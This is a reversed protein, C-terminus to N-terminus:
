EMNSARNKSIEPVTFGLKTPASRNDSVPARAIHLTHHGPARHRNRDPSTLRRTRGFRSSGPQTRYLTRAIGALVRVVPHDVGLLAMRGAGGPWLDRIKLVLARRPARWDGPPSLAPCILAPASLRTPHRLSRPRAPALRALCLGAHELGAAEHQGRLSPTRLWLLRVGEITEIRFMEASNLRTEKRTVHDFSSAILTVDHGRRNLTAAFSFHRTIGPQTPPIAYQNVIWVNMRETEAHGPASSSDRSDCERFQERHDM